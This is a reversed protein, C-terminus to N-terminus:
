DNDNLGAGAGLARSSETSPAYTQQAYAGLGAWVHDEVVVRFATNERDGLTYETTESSATRCVVREAQEMTAFAIDSFKVQTGNTSVTYKDLELDLVTGFRLAIDAVFPLILIPSKVSPLVILTTDDVDACTDSLACGAAIPCLWSDKVCLQGNNNLPMALKVSESTPYHSLLNLLLAPGPLERSALWFIARAVEEAMGWSYGVGRAALKARSATENLSYDAM